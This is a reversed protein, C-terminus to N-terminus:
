WSTPSSAWPRMSNETSKAMPRISSASPPVKAKVSGTCADQRSWSATMLRDPGSPATEIPLSPSLPIANSRSDAVPWTRPKRRLTNTEGWTPTDTRGDSGAGPKSTTMLGPTGSRESQYHVSKANRNRWSAGSHVNRSGNSAGKRSSAIEGVITKGHQGGRM